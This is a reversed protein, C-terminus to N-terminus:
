LKDGLDFVHFVLAGDMLQYTGVFEGPVSSDVTHGTGYVRVRRPTLRANPDCLVWLQPHGHQIQVSLLKSGAPMRIFQDITKLQYKWITKM